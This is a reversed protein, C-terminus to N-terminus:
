KKFKQENEGSRLMRYHPGIEPLEFEEGHTHFGFKKYLGIAPTRANCWIKQGQNLEVYKILSDLIQAGIGRGRYSPDVAMGRIRWINQGLEGNESEQIVSGIGILAGAALCTLHLTSEENDGVFICETVSGQPRLIKVRLPLVDQATVKQIM